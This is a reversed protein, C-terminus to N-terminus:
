GMMTHHTQVSAIPYEQGVPEIAMDQGTYHLSDNVFHAFGYANKGVENGVRGAHSRGYGLAIGVTKRKQGPVAVVPLIIEQEIGPTAVRLKAMSAPQKQGTKINYRGKMDAPNMTIYNDWTMRTVPDPFEQLWPNNAQAGEAIGTKMYLQLEWEGSDALEIISASLERMDVILDTPMEDPVSENEDEMHLVGDHLFKSWQHESGSLLGSLWRNKLYTHYDADSGAWKLLSDQAQRTNFLPSIVPQSLSYHGKGPKYDNWSELYHNDPCAYNCQVATEDMRDAFSIKLKVNQLAKAFHWGEPMTYVPNCGYFIIAQVEGNHMDDVLLKMKRDDGQRINCPNGLGITKGYNGLLFNITNVVSQISPDNSDSIVLSAGRARWLDEAAARLKKMVKDDDDPKGADVPRGGTKNAILNYLHLVALGQDSPKIAGRVDANSGTLSLITEFQYHRSMKDRDPNRGSAYQAAYEIPSLWTSLFDAGFSVVVEAKDFRYGPIVAKGFCDENAQRIGSYSLADYTVHRFSASSGAQETTITDTDLTNEQQVGCLTDAFDEIVAKTSPSLISNSLLVINGGEAAIKKLKKSIEEDVSEWSSEFGNAMPEKLRSTDYLSLVSANVRANIAGKTVGSMANGEIHVPRGERTKVLISCYDVGDAYTSAYWLPEGPTIEEPKALYPISKVVPTECAALSAAAVSFGFFKLFDRRSAQSSGVLSEDALFEDVPIPEPFEGSVTEEFSVGGQLQEQGKWYKRKDSM